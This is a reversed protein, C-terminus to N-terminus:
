SWNIQKLYDLATELAGDDVLIKEKGDEEIFRYLENPMPKEGRWFGM